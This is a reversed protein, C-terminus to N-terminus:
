STRRADARLGRSACARIEAVDYDDSLGADKVYLFGVSHPGKPISINKRHFFEQKSVRAMSPLGDVSVSFYDYYQEASVRFEFSLFGDRVLQVPSVM